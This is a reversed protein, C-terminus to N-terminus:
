SLIVCAVEPHATAIKEFTALGQSDPLGLDLLVLQFNKTQLLKRASELTHATEIKFSVRRDTKLSIAFVKCYDSDDDVLLMHVMPPPRTVERM